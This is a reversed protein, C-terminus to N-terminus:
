FKLKLMYRIRAQSEKYVLYESQSFNSASWKTKKPAGQPVVVDNGEFKVTTDQKPDPETRGRAVVCDSGAPANKLSRNDKTIEHEKGLAAEVLFMFGIGPHGGWRGAHKGTTGVYGASKGNESALYIGRGVRGGSHPMIRLGSKLIAVVVAVQTGHWLLKRNKLKSHAKFRANESKRDVEFLDLLQVKRGKTSTLYKSVIKFDKSGPAVYKLTTGLAKYNADDPHQKADKAGTAVGKAIDSLMDLLDFEKQCESETTIAPPKKRGFSHPIATYYKSSLEVLKATKKAEICKQIEALIAVGKNVQGQSLQGLPMQDVDIGKEKMSDKFMDHSFILKITDQLPKSLSCKKGTSVSAIKPEKKSGGSGASSMEILSYKGAAAKFNARKDWDNKTKSKFKSKFAKKASDLNPGGLKASAGPEGVRGWRTWCVYKGGEEVVQIIYYKNNNAGVNTQNLMADYYTGSEGYVQGKGPFSTDLKPRKASKGGDDSSDRKRKLSM